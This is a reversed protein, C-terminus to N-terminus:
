YSNKSKGQTASEAGKARSLALKAGEELFSYDAGIALFNFGLEANKAAVDGGGSVVLLPTQLLLPPPPPLPVTL